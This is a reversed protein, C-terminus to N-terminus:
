VEGWNFTERNINQHRAIECLWCEWVSIQSLFEYNVWIQFWLSVKLIRVIFYFKYRVSFSSARFKVYSLFDFSKNRRSLTANVSYSKVSLDFVGFFSFFDFVFVFFGCHSAFQSAVGAGSRSAPECMLVSLAYPVNSIVFLRLSLVILLALNFYQLGIHFLWLADISSSPVCWM